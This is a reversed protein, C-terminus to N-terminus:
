DDLPAYVIPVGEGVARLVRVAAARHWTAPYRTEPEHARYHADDIYTVLEQEEAARVRDAWATVFAATHKEHERVEDSFGPDSVPGNQHPESWRIQAGTRRAVRATVARHWAATYPGEYVDDHIYTTLWGRNQAAWRDVLLDTEALAARLAEVVDAPAPGPVIWRRASDYRVGMTAAVWSPGLGYAETLAKTQAPSWVAPHQSRKMKRSGRRPVWTHSFWEEPLGLAQARVWADATYTRYVREVDEAVATHQAAPAPPEDARPAPPRFLPDNM